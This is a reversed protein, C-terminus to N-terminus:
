VPTTSRGFATACTKHRPSGASHSQSHLFRKGAHSGFRAKAFIVQAATTVQDEFNVASAALYLLWTRYKKAGLLQIARECNQQLRDVWARCTLAYHRRLNEVALVEFGAREGARVVEALRVLQGGPFV